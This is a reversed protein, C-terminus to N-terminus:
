CTAERTVTRGTARSNDRARGTDPSQGNVCAHGDRELIKAKLRQTIPKTRVINGGRTVRYLPAGASDTRALMTAHRKRAAAVREEEALFMSAFPDRDARPTAVM